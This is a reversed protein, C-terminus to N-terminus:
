SNAPLGGLLSLGLSLANFSIHAGAAIALRGSSEYWLGLLTGCLWLPVFHVLYGHLAAFAAGSLVAAGLPSMRARRRLMGHLYGRFFLEEALPAAVVLLAVWAAVWGRGAGELLRAIQQQERQGLEAVRGGLGAIWALGVIAKGAAFQVLALIPGRVLGRAWDLLGGPGARTATRRWGWFGAAALTSQLLVFGVLARERGQLGLAQAVAASVLPGVILAAVLAAALPWM